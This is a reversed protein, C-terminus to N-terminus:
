FDFRVKLFYGQIALDGQNIYFKGDMGDDAFNIFQNQGPFFHHEWGLDLGLHYCEDCSIWDYSVGIQMDVIATGAHYFNKTNLLETVDDGNLATEHYKVNYYNYLLSGAYNSFLSWGCGFGWQVDVGGRIGIGWYDVEGKLHHQTIPPIPSSFVEKQEVHLHQKLWGTRLGGHPRLTLYRSVFFERGNELDLLNLHLNWKSSISGDQENFTRAPHTQTPFITEEDGATFNRHAATHWRTWQLLVDWGDHATNLGLGVRFGWDWNFDLNKVFSKDPGILTSGEVLIGVGLGNVHAQWLLPDVTVYLGWCDSSFPRASPNVMCCNNQSSELSTVRNEINRLRAEESANLLSSGAVLSFTALSWLKKTNRNM